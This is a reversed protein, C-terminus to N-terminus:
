VGKSVLEALQRCVHTQLDDGVYAVPPCLKRLRWDNPKSFQQVKIVVCLLKHFRFKRLIQFIRHTCELMEGLDRRAILLVLIVSSKSLEAASQRVPKGQLGPLMRVQSSGDMSKGFRSLSFAILGCHINPEEGLSFKSRKRNTLTAM